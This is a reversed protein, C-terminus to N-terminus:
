ILSKKLVIMSTQLFLSSSFWTYISSTDSTSWLITILVEFVSMRLAMFRDMKSIYM